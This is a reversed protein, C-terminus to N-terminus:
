MSKGYHKQLFELDLKSPGNVNRCKNRKHIGELIEKEKETLTDDRRVGERSRHKEHKLWCLDFRYM